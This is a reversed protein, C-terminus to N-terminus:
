LWPALGHPKVPSYTVTIAFCHVLGISVAKMTPHARFCALSAVPLHRMNTVVLEELHPAESIPKLDLLSKLNEIDCRRLEHLSRFSPLTRVNKLDQLFLYRLQVLDAVASLDTLGRVM